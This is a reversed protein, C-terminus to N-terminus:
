DNALLLAVLLYETMNSSLVSPAINLFDLQFLMTGCFFM